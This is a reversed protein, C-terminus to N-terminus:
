ICANARGVPFHIGAGIRARGIISHVADLFLRGVSEFRVKGFVAASEGAYPTGDIIELGLM